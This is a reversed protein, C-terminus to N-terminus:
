PVASMASLRRAACVFGMLDCLSPAKFCLAATASPMPELEM